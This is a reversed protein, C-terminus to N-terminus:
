GTAGALERYIDGALDEDPGGFYSAHTAKVAALSEAAVLLVECDKGLEKEASFYAEMADKSDAFERPPDQVLVGQRRDFILLYHHLRRRNKM